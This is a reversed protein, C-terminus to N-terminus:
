QTSSNLWNSILQEGFECLISEPHFQVGCVPLSKHQIAMILGDEDIATIEICPDIRNEDIVWSHYRAVSFSSPINKFLLNERVVKLPTAVGHYVHDLNKLSCHFHEGIAQMGLCVGLIQKRSAYQHLLQPMLGSESPTGPGPSLVIRSYSEVKELSVKDNKVVDVTCPGVKELLHSLNYTFSDYNDILLISEM